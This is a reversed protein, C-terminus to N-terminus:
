IKWLKLPKGVLLWLLFVGTFSHQDGTNGTVPKCYKANGEKWVSQGLGNFGQLIM